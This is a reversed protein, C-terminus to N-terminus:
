SRYLNISRYSMQEEAEIAADQDLDRATVAVARAIEADAEMKYREYLREAEDGGQRRYHNMNALFVTGRIFAQEGTFVRVRARSGIRTLMDEHALDLM